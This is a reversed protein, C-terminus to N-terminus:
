CVCVDMYIFVTFVLSVNVPIEKSNFVVVQIQYSTSCKQRGSFKECFYIVHCLIAKSPLRSM